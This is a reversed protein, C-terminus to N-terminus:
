YLWHVMISIKKFSVTCSSAEKEGAIHCCKYSYRKNSKAVKLNKGFKSKNSDQLDAVRSKRM